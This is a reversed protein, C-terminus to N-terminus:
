WCPWKMHLKSQHQWGWLDMPLSRFSCTVSCSIHSYSTPRERSTYARPLLGACRWWLPRTNYYIYKANHQTYYYKITIICKVLILCVDWTKLQNAASKVNLWMWISDIKQLSCHRVSYKGISWLLLMPVLVEKTNRMWSHNSVQYWTEQKLKVHLM